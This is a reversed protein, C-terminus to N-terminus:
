KPKPKKTIEKIINWNRTTAPTKLTKELFPNPLAGEGGGHTISYAETKTIKIVKATSKPISLPVPPANQTETSLFTVLFSSNEAQENKFPNNNLLEQLYPLPRLLIQIDKNLISHVAKQLDKQLQPQDTQNTQFIINGSQKYVSVNQYGLPTLANLLDQKHVVNYRGVNVGRLFAVYTPM